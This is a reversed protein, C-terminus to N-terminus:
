GFGLGRGSCDRHEDATLDTESTRPLAHAVLNQCSFPPGLNKLVHDALFVDRARELVRDGGVPKRVREQEGAGPAHSLRGSGTDQCFREVALVAGCRSGAAHTVGAALGRGAGGHVNDLYVAGRVSAYLMNTFQAFGDPVGGHAAFVLDVDDVFDVHERVLRKVGQELGEFLGRRVNEKNEGRCLRLFYWSGNM